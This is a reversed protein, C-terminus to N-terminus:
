TVKQVPATLCSNEAERNSSDNRHEFCLVSSPCLEQLALAGDGGIGGVERLEPSAM